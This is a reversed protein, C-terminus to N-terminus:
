KATCFPSSGSMKCATGTKALAEEFERHIQPDEDEFSIEDGTASSSWAGGGAKAKESGWGIALFLCPSSGTNFHQHFWGEGPVIVSGPGWECTISPEDKGNPWMLTYGEGRLIMVNIGPGHRHAKKYVGVPWSSSHNHM